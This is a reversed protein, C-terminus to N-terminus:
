LYPPAASHSSQPPFACVTVVICACKCLQVFIGGEERERWRGRRGMERGREERREGGREKGGMGEWM